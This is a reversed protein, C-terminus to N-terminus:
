YRESTLSLGVSTIKNKANLVPYEALFHRYRSPEGKHVTCQALILEVRGTDKGACVIRMHMTCHRLVTLLKSLVFFIVSM